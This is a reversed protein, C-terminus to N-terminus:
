IINPITKTTFLLNVKTTLTKTMMNKSIPRPDLIFDSFTKADSYLGLCSIVVFESSLDKVCSGRSGVSSSIIPGM